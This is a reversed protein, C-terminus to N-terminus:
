FLHQGGTVFVESGTVYAFDEGCLRFVVSAVEDASGMRRMPIRAVLPDYDRSIMGTAIEGPAVANVRIGLPALEAAMERTLGSLATKSAAYASGAFPHVSHGAISTVNVIAGQGAALAPALGRSLAVPAHFNLEFVERWQAPTSHLLGLRERYGSKPSTGANNVLAGLARGGLGALIEEAARACDGPLSLDAAVHLLHAAGLGPPPPERSATAVLWGERAFRLATALGIGRSAGTVVAVRPAAADSM